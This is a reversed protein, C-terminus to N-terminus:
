RTQNMVWWEGAPERCALGSVHVADGAYDVSSRYPQCQPEGSTVLLATVVGPASATVDTERRSASAGLAAKTQQPTARAVRTVPLPPPRIPKESPAPPAAPVAALASAPELEALKTEDPAPSPPEAAIVPADMPPALPEPEAMVIRTSFDSPPVARQPVPLEVAPVEPASAVSAVPANPTHAPSPPAADALEAPASPAPVTAFPTAPAFIPNRRSSCRLCRRRRRGAMRASVPFGGGACRMRRSWRTSARPRRVISIGAARSRSRVGNWAPLFAACRAAPMSSRYPARKRVCTDCSRARTTASRRRGNGGLCCGRTHLGSEAPMLAASGAAILVRAQRLLALAHGELAERWEHWPLARAYALWSEALAVLFPATSPPEHLSTPAAQTWVPRLM